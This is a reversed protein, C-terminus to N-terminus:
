VSRDSVAADQCPRHEGATSRHPSGLDTLWMERSRTQCDVRPHSLDFEEGSSHARNVGGPITRDSSFIGSGAVHSPRRTWEDRDGYLYAMANRCRGGSGNPTRLYDGHSRALDAPAIPSPGSSPRARRPNTTVIRLAPRVPELARENPRRDPRFCAMEITARDNRERNERTHSLLSRGGPLPRFQKPQPDGYISPYDERFAGRRWIATPCGNIRQTATLIM